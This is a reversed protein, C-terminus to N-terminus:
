QEAKSLPRHIRDAEGASGSQEWGLILQNTNSETYRYGQHGMLCDTDRDSREADFLIPLFRHAYIYARCAEKTQFLQHQKDLGNVKGKVTYPEQGLFIFTDKRSMQVNVFDMSGKCKRQNLEWNYEAYEPLHGVYMIAETKGPPDFAGPDSTCPGLFARTWFAPELEGPGIRRPRVTRDGNVVFM